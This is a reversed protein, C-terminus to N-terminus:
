LSPSGPIGVHPEIPGVVHLYVPGKVALAPFTFMIETATKQGPPYVKLAYATAQKVGGYNAADAIQLLTHATAGPILTVTVTPTTREWGAPSGLQGTQGIASVGPFGRVTVTHGSINTFELPYYTSGATNEGAGLGLWVRLSATTAPPPAAPAATAAANAGTVTGLTVVGVAALAAIRHKLMTISREKEGELIGRRGLRAPM